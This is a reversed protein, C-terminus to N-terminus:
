SRRLASLEAAKRPPETGRSPPKGLGSRPGDPRRQPVRTVEAGATSAEASGQRHGAERGIFHWRSLHLRDGGGKPPWPVDTWPWCYDNCLSRLIIEVRKLIAEIRNKDISTETLKGSRVLGKWGKAPLHPESRGVCVFGCLSTVYQRSLDVQTISLAQTLPAIYSRSAVQLSSVTQGPLPFM